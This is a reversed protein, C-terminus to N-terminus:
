LTHLVLLSGLALGSQPFHALCIKFLKIARHPQGSEKYLSWPRVNSLSGRRPVWSAISFTLPEVLSQYPHYPRVRQIFFTLSFSSCYDLQHQFELKGTLGKSWLYENQGMLLLCSKFVYHSFSFNSTVLLKEEVSM